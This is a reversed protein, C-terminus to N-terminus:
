FAATPEVVDTVRAKGETLAFAYVDLGAIRAHVTSEQGVVPDKVVTDIASSEAKGVQIVVALLAVIILIAGVSPVTMADFGNSILTTYVGVAPELM